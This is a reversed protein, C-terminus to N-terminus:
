SFSRDGSTCTIPKSISFNLLAPVFYSHFFNRLGSITFSFISKGLYNVQYCDMTHQENMDPILGPLEDPSYLPEDYGTPEENPKINFSSVIDRGLTFAEAETAAYHDTCGSVSFCRCCCFLYIKM